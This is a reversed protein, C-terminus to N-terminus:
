GDILEVFHHQIFRNWGSQLRIEKGDVLLLNIAASPRLHVSIVCIQSINLQIGALESALSTKM